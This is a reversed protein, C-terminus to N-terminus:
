FVLHEKTLYGEEKISQSVIARGQSARIQIRPYYDFVETNNIFDKM